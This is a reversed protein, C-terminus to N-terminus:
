RYVDIREAPVVVNLNRALWRRRVAPTGPTSTHRQSILTLGRYRQGKSVLDLQRHGHVQRHASVNM